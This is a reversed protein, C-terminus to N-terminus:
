LSLDFGEDEALLSALDLDSGDGPEPIHLPQRERAVTWIFPSSQLACHHWILAEAYSM